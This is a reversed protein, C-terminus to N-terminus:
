INSIIDILKDTDDDCNTKKCKVQLRNAGFPCTLVYINNEVYLLGMKEYSAIQKLGHLAFADIHKKQIPESTLLILQTKNCCAKIHLFECKM